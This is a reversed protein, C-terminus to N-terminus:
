VMHLLGRRNMTIKNGHIYDGCLRPKNYQVGSLNVTMVFEM